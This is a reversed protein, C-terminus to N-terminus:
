ESVEYVLFSPQIPRAFISKMYFILGSVVLLLPLCLKLKIDLNNIYFLLGLIHKLSKIRIDIRPAGRIYAWDLGAIFESIILLNWIVFIVSAIGIFYTLYRRRNINQIVRAYLLVFMPFETLLFRSLLDEGPSFERSILILKVVLYSTLIIFFVDQRREATNTIKLSKIFKIAIFIFGTLCIYLIPSIYFVGRYSSFFGDFHSLRGIYEYKLHLIHSLISLEMIHFMGYQLYANIIKLIFMPVFGLVFYIGNKWNILKKICLIIFFLFIYSIPLWLDFRVITCISFFLGFLFWDRKKMSLMYSCFWILLISFFSGIINANGVKFLMYYFFPTGLFIMLISWLAIKDSFFVRCFFYTLLLAFFGFVVTSFSMACKALRDLGNITLSTLNLKTAISYISKAYVYFPAWLLVGGHSRHDPFNYTKSIFRGFQSFQNVQNVTNLDGDEVISATYAFYIPEDPGHFNIDYVAFLYLVFLLLIFYKINKM